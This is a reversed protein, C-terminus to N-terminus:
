ATVAVGQVMLQGAKKFGKLEAIIERWYRRDEAQRALVREALIRDTELELDDGVLDGGVVVRAYNRLADDDECATQIDPYEEVLQHFEPLTFVNRFAWRYDDDNVIDRQELYRLVLQGIVSYDSARQTKKLEVLHKIGVTPIDGWDTSILEAEGAAEDFSPVRPPKGMVDLFFADKGGVVFHFGHGRELNTLSFSPTLKYYTARSVSLAALFRRRNEDDIRVWIDVDESFASAGYLITAQGSILLYRVKENSLSQFFSAIM